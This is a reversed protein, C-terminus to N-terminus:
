NLEIDNFDKLEDDSYYNGREAALKSGKPLVVNNKIFEGLQVFHEKNFEKLLITIQCSIPQGDDSMFTGGGDVEGFNNEDLFEQILDEATAREDIPSLVTPIEVNVFFFKEEEQKKKKKKFFGFM